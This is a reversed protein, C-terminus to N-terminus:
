RNIRDGDWQLSDRERIGLAEIRPDTCLAHQLESSGAVITSDWDIESVVIWARDAPWILSPSEASPAFRAPLAPRLPSM